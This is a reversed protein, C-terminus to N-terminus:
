HSFELSWRGGHTSHAIEPSAPASTRLLGATLLVSLLLTGTAALALRRRSLLVSRLRHSMPRLGLYRNPNANLM